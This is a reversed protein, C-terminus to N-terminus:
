VVESISEDSLLDRKCTGLTQQDNEIIKSEISDIMAVMMTSAAFHAGHFGCEKWAGELCANKEKRPIVAFKEAFEELNYGRMEVERKIEETFHLCNIGYSYEMKRRYVWRFFAARNKTDPSEKHCDNCLLFVNDPDDKGGFQKAVIHCRQLVSNIKKDKWIEEVSMDYKDWSIINRPRVPLGCAFCSPLFEDEVVLRGSLNDSDVICGKETIAKDRWFDFITKCSIM